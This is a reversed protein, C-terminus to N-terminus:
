PRQWFRNSHHLLTSSYPKQTKPNKLGYKFSTRLEKILKLENNSDDVFFRLFINFVHSLLLSKQFQEFLEPLSLSTTKCLIYPQHRCDLHTQTKKTCHM